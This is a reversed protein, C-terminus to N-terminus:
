VHARGIKHVQCLRLLLQIDPEYSQSFLYDVLCIVAVVNGTTVEVALQADGGLPGPLVSNIEIDTEQLIYQATNETGVLEYRSLVTKHKKVFEVLNNKKSDYALLAITNGMVKM